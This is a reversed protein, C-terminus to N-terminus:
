VHAVGNATAGSRPAFPSAPLAPMEKPTGASALTLARAVIRRGLEIKHANDGSPSAEAFAETAAKEFFAPEPRMGKLLAEASKARWPKAAVSGIAIRAEAVM